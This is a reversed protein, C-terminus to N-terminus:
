TSVISFTYKCHSFVSLNHFSFTFISNPCNVIAAKFYSVLLFYKPTRFPRLNSLHYDNAHVIKYILHPFCAYQHGYYVLYTFCLKSLFRLTLLILSIVVLLITIKSLLHLIKMSIILTSLCVFITPINYSTNPLFCMWLCYM